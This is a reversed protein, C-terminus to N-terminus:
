GARISAPRAGKNAEGGARKDGPQIHRKVAMYVKVIQLVGPALDDGTSQKRQKIEFREEQSKRQAALQTESDELLAMSEASDLRLKFLKDQALGELVEPTLETGKKLGGGSVVQQGALAKHLRAM